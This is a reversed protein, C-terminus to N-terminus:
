YRSLRGRKAMKITNQQKKDYKAMKIKSRWKKDYQKQWAV